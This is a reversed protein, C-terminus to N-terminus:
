RNRNQEINRMLKQNQETQERILRIKQQRLVEEVEGTKVVANKTRTAELNQLIQQHIRAQESIRMLEASKINSANASENAQIIGQISRNTDEVSVAEAQLTSQEQKEQAAQEPQKENDAAAATVSALTMKPKDAPKKVNAGWNFWGAKREEAFGSASCFALVAAFAVAGAGFRKIMDKM